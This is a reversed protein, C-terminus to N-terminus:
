SLLAHVRKTAVFPKEDPGKIYPNIWIRKKILKGTKEDKMPQWRWHGIVLWRRSYERSSTSVGSSASRYKHRIDIVTVESPTTASKLRKLQKKNTVPTKTVSVIEAPQKLMLNLSHLIKPLSVDIASYGHIRMYEKQKLDLAMTTGDIYEGEARYVWRTPPTDFNRGKFSESWSRLSGDSANFRDNYGIIFTSIIGTERSEITFWCMAHILLDETLAIGRAFYCFGNPSVLSSRDSVDDDKLVKAGMLVMESMDDDCYLLDCTGSDLADTFAAVYDSSDSTASRKFGDIVSQSAVAKIAPLYNAMRTQYMRVFQADAVSPVHVWKRLDEHMDPVDKPKIMHSHYLANKRIDLRPRIKKSFKKSIKITIPANLIRLKTILPPYAVIAV